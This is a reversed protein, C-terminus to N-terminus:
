RSGPATPSRKPSPGTGAAFPEVEFVGMPGNWLVTAAGDIEDSFIAATEPGIDLGKWGDPIRAAKM